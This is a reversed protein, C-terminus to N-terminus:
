LAVVVALFEQDWINYNQELPTLVKSFYAVDHRRGEEDKQFLVVGLAFVSADVELFYQKKPDPCRLVPTTTVKKILADLAEM